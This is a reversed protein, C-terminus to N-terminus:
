PRETVPHSPRRPSTWATMMQKQLALFQGMSDMYHQMVQAQPSECAASAIVPLSAAVVAKSAAPQPQPQIESQAALAAAAPLTHLNQKLIELTPEALKFERLGLEMHVTGAKPKAPAPAVAELTADWPLPDYSELRVPVHQAVLMGLLHCM